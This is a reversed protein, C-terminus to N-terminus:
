KVELWTLPECMKVESYIDRPSINGSLRECYIELFDKLNEEKKMYTSEKSTRFLKMIDFACYNQGGLDLDILFIENKESVMMNSPKLDGHCTCVRLNYNKFIQHMACVEKELDEVPIFSPVESIAKLQQILEFLWVWILPSCKKDCETKHLTALIESTRVRMACSESIDTESLTRGCIYETVLFDEDSLIVKPALGMDGLYKDIEGVQLMNTQRLKTLPSYLKVIVPAQVGNQVKYVSNCFGKSVEEFVLSDSRLIQSIRKQELERLSVRKARSSKELKQFEPNSFKQTVFM